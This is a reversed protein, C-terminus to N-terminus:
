KRQWWHKKKPVVTVVAPKAPATITAPTAPKIVVVKADLSEPRKLPRKFGFGAVEAEITKDVWKQDYRTKGLIQYQAQPFAEGAAQLSAFNNLACGALLIGLGVLLTVHRLAQFQRTSLM